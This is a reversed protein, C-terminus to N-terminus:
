RYPHRCETRIAVLFQKANSIIFMQKLYLFESIHGGSEKSNPPEKKCVSESLLFQIFYKM